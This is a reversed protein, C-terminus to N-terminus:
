TAESTIQAHSEEHKSNDNTSTGKRYSVLSIGLAILGNLFLIVFLVRFGDLPIPDNAKVDVDEYQNEEHKRFVDDIVGARDWEQILENVKKAHEWSKKMIFGFSSQSFFGKPTYMRKRLKRSQAGVEKRLYDISYDFDIWVYNSELKEKVIRVLKKPDDTVNIFEIGDDNRLLKSLISNNFGRFQAEHRMASAVKHYSGVDNISKLPKSYSDASLIAALNATYTTLFIVM